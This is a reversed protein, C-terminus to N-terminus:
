HVVCAQIVPDIFDDEADFFVRCDFSADNITFVAAEAIKDREEAIRQLSQGYTKDMWKLVEEESHGAMIKKSLEEEMNSFLHAADTTVKQIRTEYALLATKAKQKMTDKLSSADGIHCVIASQNGVKVEYIM